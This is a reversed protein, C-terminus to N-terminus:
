FCLGLVAARQATSVIHKISFQLFILSRNFGCDVFFSCLYIIFNKLFFNIEFFRIKFITKKKKLYIFFYYYMVYFLHSYYTYIM